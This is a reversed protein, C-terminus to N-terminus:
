KIEEYDVYEGETPPIKSSASVKEEIRVEGEQKQKKEYYHHHTNQQYNGSPKKGGSFAGFLRWIFWIGLITFFFEQM